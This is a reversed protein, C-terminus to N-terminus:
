RTILIIFGEQTFHQDNPLVEVIGEARCANMSICDTLSYSKGPRNKYLEYGALFTERSQPLVTIAPDTFHANVLLKAALRLFSDGSMAALFETLVEDTTVIPRKGLSRRAELTRSHWQDQRNALGYWYFTDAFVPNM